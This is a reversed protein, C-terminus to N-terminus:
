GNVAEKEAAMPVAEVAALVSELVKAAATTHDDVEASAPPAFLEDLGDLDVNAALWWSHLDEAEVLEPELTIQTDSFASLSRDQFESVRCCKVAVVQGQRGEFRTAVDDWLTLAVEGSSDILGVDIRIVQRRVKRSFSAIPAGVYNIIAVVDIRDGNRMNAVESLPVFNYLTPLPCPLPVTEGPALEVISRGTILLEIRNSSFRRKPRQVLVRALLLQQGAHLLPHLHESHHNFMM